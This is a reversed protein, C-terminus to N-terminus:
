TRAFRQVSRLNASSDDSSEDMCDKDLNNAQFVAIQILIAHISQFVQFVATGRFLLWILQFSRSEPMLVELLDKGLPAELKNLM